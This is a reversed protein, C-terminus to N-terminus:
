RRTSRKFSQILHSILGLIRIRVKFIVQEPSLTTEKLDKALVVLFKETFNNNFVKCNRLAKLNLETSIENRLPGSLLGLVKQEEVNYTM